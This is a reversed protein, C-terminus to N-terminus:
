PTKGANAAGPWAPLLPPEPDGARGPNAQGRQQGIVYDYRSRTFDEYDAKDRLILPRLFVVLNTKTRKRNDYRFLSGLVPLDGLFPMKEVGGSASDEILGGLAIIAGDDVLITSEISRKTTTPGSLNSTTSAVVASAEQYVILRIAGGESIQPKVKLTLGVDRREITQFPNTATGSTSNTYQGTVFPLNSGVVIKAEENDLMVVHPTSLINARTENELFRALLGLAPMQGIGPITVTGATAAVSAGNGPVTLTGSANGAMLQLLNNGGSSFATGGLVGIKGSAGGFLWQLGVEAAKEASVEAILAELYIQARRRDLEDIVQRLNRYVADPATIILANSDPNAQVIAGNTSAGATGSGQTSAFAGGTGSSLNAAANPDSNATTTSGPFNAATTTNVAANDGRGLIGNLTKAVRAAEANKLYVVHINGGAGPRDLTAVLQRVASLRAPNDAKVLLMNTRPEAVLQVRQTSDSAGPTAALLRGVTGALDQAVAHQLELAVFDGQPVDIAEVIRRIRDVNEAYDTLVLTNNAAFATISNNPSVLPRVVPLLQAASEHRLAIVQTVLRDGRLAGGPGAVPVGQLKADAEPVIKSVGQGEVVAYGQLRLASLLIQYALDRPVPANTVINLNGKVRPDILFNRGTIKGIARIVSDIDANAFNLSIREDSATKAAAEVPAGQATPCSMPQVWTCAAILLSPLPIRPM